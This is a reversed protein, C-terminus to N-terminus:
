HHNLHMMGEKSDRVEGKVCHGLARCGGTGKVRLERTAITFLKFM